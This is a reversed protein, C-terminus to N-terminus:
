TTRVSRKMNSLSVRSFMAKELCEEGQMSVYAKIFDSNVRDRILLCLQSHLVASVGILVGDVRVSDEVQTLQRLDFRLSSHPLRSFDTCLLASVGVQSQSPPIVKRRKSASMLLSQSNPTKYSGQSRILRMSPSKLPSEIISFVSKSSVGLCVEVRGHLSVPRLVLRNLRYCVAYDTVQTLHTWTTKKDSAFMVQVPLIGEQGHLLEVLLSVEYKPDCCGVVRLTRGEIELLTTSFEKLAEFDGNSVFVRSDSIVRYTKLLEQAM